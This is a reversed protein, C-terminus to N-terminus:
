DFESSRLADILLLFLSFKLFNRLGYDGVMGGMVLGRILFERVELGVRWRELRILVVIGRICISASFFSAILLRGM